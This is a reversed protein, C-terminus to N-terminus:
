LAPFSAGRIAACDVADGTDGLRVMSSRPGMSPTQDIPKKDRMTVVTAPPHEGKKLINWNPASDDVFKSQAPTCPKGDVLVCDVVRSDLHEAVSDGVGGKCEADIAGSGGLRTRLGIYLTEARPSNDDLANIADLPAGRFVIPRGDPNLLDPSCGKPSLTMGIKGMKITIGPKNDGDTDAFCKPGTGSKCAFTGTEAPKPWAGEQDMLEIGLLSTIPALTLIDDPNFGSVSASTTYTPMSPMDWLENPFEIQFADCTADSSFAPLETGCPKIVAKSSSGDDCVDSIDVKLYVTIKSRGSDVLPPMADDQWWVDVQSKVAYVGPTMAKCTGDLVDTTKCVGPDVMDGGTGGSM